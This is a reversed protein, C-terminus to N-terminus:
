PDVKKGNIDGGTLHIICEKIQKGADELFSVRLKEHTCELNYNRVIKDALMKCMSKDPWIFVYNQGEQRVEFYEDTMENAEKLYMQYKGVISNTTQASAFGIALLYVLFITIAKHIM